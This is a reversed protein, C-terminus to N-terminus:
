RQYALFENLVTKTGLLEGVFPAERWPVGM